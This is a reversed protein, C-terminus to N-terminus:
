RTMCIPWGALIMVRSRSVGFGGNFTRESVTVARVSLTGEGYLKRQTRRAQWPKEGASPFAGAIRNILRIAKRGAHTTPMAQLLRM